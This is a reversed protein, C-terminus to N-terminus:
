PAGPVMPMRGDEPITLTINVDYLNSGRVILPNSQFIGMYDGKNPGDGHVDQFAELILPGFGKPVRIRYNGPSRKFKGLMKRGGPEDNDPKFLDVDIKECGDCILKGYVTIMSGNFNAWPNEDGPGVKEPQSDPKANEIHEVQNASVEKHELDQHSISETQIEKHELKLHEPADEHVQKPPQIDGPSGRAGEKLQIWVNDLDESSVYLEIQAFPDDTSPGDKDIDQFAQIELYGLDKPVYVEFEGTRPVLLKGHGAMGGPANTDATRFDVDIMMEVTSRIVGKLLVKEGDFDSFPVASGTPEGQWNAQADQRAGPVLEISLDGIDEPGVRIDFQAFPDHDSPGDGELDQFVHITLDGLNYPVELEFVGPEKLILKGHNEFGGESNADPTLFDIDVPGSKRSTVDGSMLVTKGDHNAFPTMPASGEAGGVKDQNFFRSDLPRDLGTVRELCAFLSMIVFLATV